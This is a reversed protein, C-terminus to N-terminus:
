LVVSWVCAVASGILCVAIGVGIWFLDSRRRQPMWRVFPADTM